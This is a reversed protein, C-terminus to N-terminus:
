YCSPLNLINGKTSSAIKASVPSHTALELESNMRRLKLKPSNGSMDVSCSFQSQTTEAVTETKGTLKEPTGGVEMLSDNFTDKRRAARKGKAVPTLALNKEHLSRELTTKRPTLSLVTDALSSMKPSVPVMDCAAALTVNKCALPTSVKMSNNWMNEKRGKRSRPSYSSNPGSGSEKIDDDGNVSINNSEEGLSSPQRNRLRRDPVEPTPPSATSCIM